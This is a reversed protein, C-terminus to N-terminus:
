RRATLALPIRRIEQLRIFAPYIQILRKFEKADAGKWDTITFHWIIETDVDIVIHFKLYDKKESKRKIRLDFWKSSTKLSFGSSDVAIDM